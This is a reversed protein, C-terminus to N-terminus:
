KSRQRRAPIRPHLERGDPRHHRCHVVGHASDGHRLGPHPHIAVLGTGAYPRTHPDTPMRERASVLSATRTRALSQEVVDVDDGGDIGMVAFRKRVQVINACWDIGGGLAPTAVVIGSGSPPPRRRTNQALVNKQYRTRAEAAYFKRLPRITPLKTRAARVRVLGSIPNDAGTRHRVRQRVVSGCPTSRFEEGSAPRM